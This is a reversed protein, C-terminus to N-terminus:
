LLFQMHHRHTHRNKPWEKAHFSFVLKKILQERVVWFLFRDIWSKFPFSTVRFLFGKKIASCTIERDRKFNSFLLWFIDDAVAERLLGDPSSFPTQVDETWVLLRPPCLPFSPPPHRFSQFIRVNRGVCLEIEIKWGCLIILFTSCSSSFSTLKTASFVCM